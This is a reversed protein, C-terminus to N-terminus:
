IDIEFCVSKHATKGRDIVWLIVKMDLEVVLALRV